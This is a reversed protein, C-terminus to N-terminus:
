LEEDDTEEPQDPSFLTSAISTKETDIRDNVKQYLIDSITDRFKSAENDRFHMMADSLKSEIDM